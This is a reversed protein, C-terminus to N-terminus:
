GARSQRAPPALPLSFGAPPLEVGAAHEPQRAHLLSIARVLRTFRSEMNRHKCYLLLGAFGLVSLGLYLVLDAGRGVGTWNAMRTCAQPDLVFYTAAAVLLVLIVRDLLRSRLRRFYVVLFAFFASLMLVQIPKM